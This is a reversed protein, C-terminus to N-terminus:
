VFVHRYYQLAAVEDDTLPLAATIDTTASAWTVSDSGALSIQKVGEAGAPVAAFSAGAQFARAVMRACVDQIDYPVTGWGGNYAVVVSQLKHTGWSRPRGGAVRTLRGTEPDFSYQSSTLATGDVTVSSVSNVPTNTLWVDATAPADFTETYDDAEVARGVVREIHGSAAAILETIVAEPDNTFDVQLRQEVQAQTCLAM